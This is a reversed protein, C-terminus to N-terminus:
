VNAGGELNGAGGIISAGGSLIVYVCVSILGGLLIRAEFGEGTTFRLDSKPYVTLILTLLLAGFAGAGLAMLIQLLFPSFAIFTRGGPLWTAGLGSTDDFAESLTEGAEANSHATELDARLAELSARARDADRRSMEAARHLDLATPRTQLAETLRGRERPNLQVEDACRLTWAWVAPRDADGGPSCAAEFKALPTAGRLDRWANEAAAAADEAELALRESLGVQRAEEKLLKDILDGNEALAVYKRYASSYGLEPHTKALEATVQQQVAATMLIITFGYTVFLTFLVRWGGFLAQRARDM